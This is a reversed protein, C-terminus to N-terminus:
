KGSWHVFRRELIIFIKNLFFGLLGAMIIASYMEPTEYVLQANIIRHGLGVSTGIFMEVVVILILTLSLATRMGAMIQPMAEPLIVKTFLSVKSAKMIVAAKIRLKNANKIGYMSNIIVILFGGWFAISIKALDGIGFFLLFLPFLATPPIARFFEVVFELSDYVKKFYGMLLGVPIGLTCAAIFAAFVRIATILFDILLNGESLTILRFFEIAVKEPSPLFLSSVMNLKSSILWVLLILIPAIITYVSRQKM